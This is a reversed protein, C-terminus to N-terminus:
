VSASKRVLIIQCGKGSVKRCAGRRYPKLVSSLSERPTLSTEATSCFLYLSKSQEQLAAKDPSSGVTSTSMPVNGTFMGDTLPQILHLITATRREERRPVIEDSTVEVTGEVVLKYSWWYLLVLEVCQRHLLVIAIVKIFQPTFIELANKTSLAAFIVLVSHV